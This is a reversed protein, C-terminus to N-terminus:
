TEEITKMCYRIIRQINETDVTRSYAPPLKMMNLTALASYYGRKSEKTKCLDFNGLIAEIIRDRWGAIAIEELGGEHHVDLAKM